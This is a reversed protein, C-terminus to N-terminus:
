KKSQPTLIQEIANASQLKSNYDLHSYYNATTTYSSHGLWEQIQKMQVGNQLMLSACTHRLDHLRIKRLGTKKLQHKFHGSFYNPYILNGDSRRCVYDRFCSSGYVSRNQEQKKKEVLLMQEIHPMLPLTRRSAQNKLKQEIVLQYSGQEDLAETVKNQIAITKTTFDIASWQLGVIESRRLGYFAALHVCLECPDNRFALFLQQMEDPTYFDGSYTNKKPREVKDSPNSQLLEMQVAFNLAKHINVHYHLVTAAKVGEDLRQRYFCQLHYPKVDSLRLELPAFYRCIVRICNRYGAFTSKVVNPKMHMLWQELFDVFPFDFSGDSTCSQKKAFENM